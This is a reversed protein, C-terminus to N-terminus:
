QCSGQYQSRCKVLVTSELSFDRIGLSDSRNQNRNEQWFEDDSFQSLFWWFKILESSKQFLYVFYFYYNSNKTFIEILFWTFYM